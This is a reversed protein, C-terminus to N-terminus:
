FHHLIGAAFASPGANATGGVSTRSASARLTFEAGNDNDLQGYSVYFNTHKSVPHVYAIGFSTAEPDGALDVKQQVYNFLVEGVGIRV